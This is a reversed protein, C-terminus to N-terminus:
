QSDCHTYPHTLYRALGKLGIETRIVKLQLNHSSTNAYTHRISIYRCIYRDIDICIGISIDGEELNCMATM